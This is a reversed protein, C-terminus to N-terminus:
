IHASSIGFSLFCKNVLKIVLIKPDNTGLLTRFTWHFSRPTFCRPSSADLSRKKKGVFIM